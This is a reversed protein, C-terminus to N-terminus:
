APTPSGGDYLGWNTLGLREILMQRFCDDEAMDALTVMEQELQKYHALLNIVVQPHTSLRLMTRSLLGAQWRFLKWRMEAAENVLELALREHPQYELASKSPDIKMKEFRLARQFQTTNRAMQCLYGWNVRFQAWRIERQLHKGARSEENDKDDNEDVRNYRLIEDPCVVCLKPIICGLPLPSPRSIKLYAKLIYLISLVIIPLSLEFTLKV